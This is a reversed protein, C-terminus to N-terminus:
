VVRCSVEHPQRYGGASYSQASQPIRPNVQCSHARCEVDRPHLTVTRPWQNCGMHNGVLLVLRRNVLEVFMDAAARCQRHWRRFSGNGDGDLLEDVACRSRSAYVMGQRCSRSPFANFAGIRPSRDVVAAFVARAKLSRYLCPTGATAGFTTAISEEM